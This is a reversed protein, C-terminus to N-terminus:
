KLVMNTQTVMLVAAKMNLLLVKEAIDEMLVAKIKCVKDTIQDAMVHVTIAAILIEARMNNLIKSQILDRLHHAINEEQQTKEKTIMLHNTAGTDKAKHHTNTQIERAAMVAAAEMLNALVM